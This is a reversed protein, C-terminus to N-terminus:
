RIGGNALSQAAARRVREQGAAREEATNDAPDNTVASIGVPGADCIQSQGVIREVQGWQFRHIGEWRICRTPWDKGRWRTTKQVERIILNQGEMEYRHVEIGRSLLYHESRGM